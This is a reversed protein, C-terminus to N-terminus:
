RGSQRGARKEHGSKAAIADAICAVADQLLPLDRQIDPEKDTRRYTAVSFGGSPLRYFSVTMTGALVARNSKLDVAWPAAPGGRQRVIELVEDLEVMHERLRRLQDDIEDRRMVRFTREDPRWPVNAKDLRRWAVLAREALAPVAIEGALWRGVTKPDVGLLLAAEKPALQLEELCAALEAKTM